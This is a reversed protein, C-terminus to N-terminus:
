RGGTALDLTRDVIDRILERDHEALFPVVPAWRKLSLRRRAYGLAYVLGERTLRPKLQQKLEELTQEARQRVFLARRGERTVLWMLERTGDPRMSTVLGERRLVRLMDDATHLQSYRRVAGTTEGLGDESHEAVFALVTWEGRTLRTLWRAAEPGGAGM